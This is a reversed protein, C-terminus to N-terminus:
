LQCTAFRDILVSIYKIGNRYDDIRINENPAHVNAGPWSIGISSIPMRNLRDLVYMPSSGSATPELALPKDYVLRAANALFTIFPSDLPTKYAPSQGYCRVELHGFGEAELYARLKELIDAPDQGVVLRFDIKASAECPLVTKKNPGTYGSTMGCITCTPETYLARVAERTTMGNLFQSLGLRGLLKAGDMPLNSLAVEEAASPPIIGDYFGPIEVRAGQGRLTALAQVLDWAPHPLVPGWRSHMDTNAGRACLEVYLMGKYGFSAVPTGDDTISGTEWICADAQWLSKNAEAFAAFHPSGIEEEGEVFFKVTCPLSDRSSLLAEVAHVRSLFHGKNDVVGRGYLQGGRITPSFPPSTWKDLPEPPQVDYHNYFLITRASEGQLVGTVIPFGLTPTIQVTAGVRELHGAILEATEVMGVNQASISPQACIAQLDILFREFHKDIFQFTTQLDAMCTATDIMNPSGLESSHRGTM